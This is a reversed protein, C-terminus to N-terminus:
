VLLGFSFMMMFVVVLMWWMLLVVISFLLVCSFLSFWISGLFIFGDILCRMIFLVFMFCIM